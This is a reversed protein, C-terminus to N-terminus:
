CNGHNWAHPTKALSNVELETNKKSAFKALFRIKKVKSRNRSFNPGLFFEQQWFNM